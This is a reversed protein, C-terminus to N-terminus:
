RIFYVNLVNDTVHHSGRGRVVQNLSIKTITTIKESYIIYIVPSKILLCLTKNTYSSLHHTQLQLRTKFSTFIVLSFDEPENLFITYVSGPMLLQNRRQENCTNSTM